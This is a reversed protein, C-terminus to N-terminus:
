KFESPIFEFRQDYSGVGTMKKGDKDVLYAHKKVKTMEKIHNAVGFPVTYSKGDEFRYTRFPEEKYLRHTFTLDGGKAELNKFTGTVMRSDRELAKQRLDEAKTLEEKTRKVRTGVRYEKVFSM